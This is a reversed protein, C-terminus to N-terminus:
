LSVEVAVFGEASHLAFEEGAPMTVCDGAALTHQGLTPHRLELSGERLFLLRFEGDHRAYARYGASARVAHVRALGSTAAEIGLDCADTGVTSEGPRWRAASNAEVHHVFHQGGYRLGTRAAGNPLTLESDVCTEHVAPCGIELVELGPSAELVRHRITPPQLVCDGANLIFPEGQDEYVLRVWGALCYIMQFRVHHYHVYDPVVGGEVIAIHSAVFRGGYRDPLLDRYRMGARGITWAPGEYRSNAAAPPLRSIVFSQRGEPVEISTSGDLLLVQWGEPGHLVDATGAPLGARDCFLQLVPPTAGAPSQTSLRLALGFGRLDAVAPEEAPFIRELQLGVTETLFALLAPLDRCPLLIRASAVHPALTM